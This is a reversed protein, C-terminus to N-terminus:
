KGTTAVLKFYVKAPIKQELVEVGLIMLFKKGRTREEDPIRLKLGVEGISSAGVKVIEKDAKLWGADFAEETGAPPTILSEWVPVARIRFNLARENPNILKLTIKREKRLDLTKGLEIMGADAISPSVTFDLNAVTEDVFKKKLEEETPPESDIQLLLHSQLGVGVTGRGGQTRSWIDAQFRRGLLAPDNPLSIIVDTVAERNPAVTFRGNEVKVWDLSPLPDYGNKLVSATPKIVDVVLEVEEDGTNVVRLPLNVLKYMSYTQGIKLRRVVVEGFQTRLGGAFADTAGMAALIAALIIKARM